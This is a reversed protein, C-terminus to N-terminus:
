RIDTYKPHRYRLTIEKSEDGRSLTAAADCEGTGYDLEFPEIGEVDFSITGRVLFRCAAHWELPNLITLTYTKGNLNTGSSMGTILCKDDWPSWTGYGAIYERERAFERTIEKGDPFTIKGGELSVAFVANQNSNPGLNEITFTGEVKAGNVYYNDFTMVRQSGTTGRPGSLNILIKGSRVVDFLGTCGTGYNIEINRPWFEQGPSTITILPCSDLGTASKTGAEAFVNAIELSAFADDYLAETLVIDDAADAAKTDIPETKSCSTMIFGTLAMLLILTKTKM